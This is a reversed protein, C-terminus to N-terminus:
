FNRSVCSQALSVKRELRRKIKSTWQELLASDVSHYSKISYVQILSVQTIRWMHVARSGLLQIRWAQFPVLITRDEM